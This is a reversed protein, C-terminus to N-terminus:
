TADNLSLLRCDNPDTVDIVCDILAGGSGGLAEPQEGAHGDDAINWHAFWPFHGTPLLRAFDDALPIDTSQAQTTPAEADVVSVVRLPVHEIFSVSAPAARLADGIHDDGKGARALRAKAPVSARRSM